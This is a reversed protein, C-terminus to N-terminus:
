PAVERVRTKEDGLIERFLWLYRPEYLFLEAPVSRNLNSRFDRDLEFEGEDFAGIVSGRSIFRVEKDTNRSFVSYDEDFIYVGDAM